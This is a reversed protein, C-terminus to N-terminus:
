RLFFKFRLRFFFVCCLFCVCRLFLFFMVCFLVLFLFFFWVFYFGDRAGATSTSPVRQSVLAVARTWEKPTTETDSSTRRGRAM